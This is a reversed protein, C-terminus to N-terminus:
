KEKYFYNILQQSRLGDCIEFTHKVKNEEIVLPFGTDKEPHAEKQIYYKFNKMEGLFEMEPFDISEVFEEITM